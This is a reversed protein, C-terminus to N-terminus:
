NKVAQFFIMFFTSKKKSENKYVNLVEAVYLKLSFYFTM